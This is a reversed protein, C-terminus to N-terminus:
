SLKPSMIFAIWRPSPTMAVIVLAILTSRRNWNIDRFARTPLLYPFDIGDGIQAM